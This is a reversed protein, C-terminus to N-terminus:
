RLGRLYGEFEARRKYSVRWLVISWRDAVAELAAHRHKCDFRVVEGCDFTHFQPASVERTPEYGWQVGGLNVLLAAPAAYTADRHFDIGIQGYAALGLEPQGEMGSKEWVMTLWKWLREPCPRPEFSRSMSLPGEHALWGRNRGPAYRSVDRELQVNGDLFLKVDAVTSASLKRAVEFM